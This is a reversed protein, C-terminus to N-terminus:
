AQVCNKIAREVGDDLISRFQTALFKPDVTTGSASYESFLSIFIGSYIHSIFLEDEEKLHVNLQDEYEKVSKHLIHDFYAVARQKVAVLDGTNAFYAHHDHMYDILEPLHSLWDEWSHLEAIDNSIRYFISRCALDALSTFHHYFTPRSVHSKQCISTVTISSFSHKDLEKNMAVMLKEAAIM